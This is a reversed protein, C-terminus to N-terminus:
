EYVIYFGDDSLKKFWILRDKIDESTDKHNLVKDLLASMDEPKCLKTDIDEPKEFDTTESIHPIINGTVEDLWTQLEDTSGYGLSVSGGEDGFCIRYEDPRPDWGYPNEQVDITYTKFWSFQIGM